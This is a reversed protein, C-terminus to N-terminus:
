VFEHEDTAMKSRRTRRTVTVDPSVRCIKQITKESPAYIERFQKSIVVLDKKYLERREAVRFGEDLNVLKGGKVLLGLLDILKSELALAEYETLSEAFKQIVPAKGFSKLTALFKGHSDNRSLDYLRDGKGKGVYFPMHTVGHNALFGQLGEAKINIPARSDCHLYVYYGRPQSSSSFGYLKTADTALINSCAVRFAADADRRSPLGKLQKSLVGMDSKLINFARLMSEMNQPDYELTRM